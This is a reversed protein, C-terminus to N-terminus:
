SHRGAAREAAIPVCARSAHDIAVIMGDPLTLRGSTLEGLTQASSLVADIAADEDGPGSDNSWVLDLDRVAKKVKVLHDALAHHRPGTARARIQEIIDDIRHYFPFDFAGGSM